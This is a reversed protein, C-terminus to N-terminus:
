FQFGEQPASAGFEFQGGNETTEPALAGDEAEQLLTILKM